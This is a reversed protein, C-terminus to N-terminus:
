RLISWSSESYHLSTDPYLTVSVSVSRLTFPEEVKGYVFEPIAEAVDKAIDNDIDVKGSDRTSDPDTTATDLTDGVFLSTDATTDKYNLSISLRAGGRRKHSQLAQDVSVSAALQM